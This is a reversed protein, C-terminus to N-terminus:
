LFLINLHFLFLFLFFICYVSFYIKYLAKEGTIFLCRLLKLDKKNYFCTATFLKQTM